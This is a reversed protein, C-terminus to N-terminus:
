AQAENANADNANASSEDSGGNAQKADTAQTGSGEMGRGAADDQDQDQDYEGIKKIPVILCVSQAPLVNRWDAILQKYAKGVNRIKRDLDFLGL